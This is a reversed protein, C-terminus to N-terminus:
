RASTKTMWWVPTQRSDGMSMTATQAAYNEHNYEIETQPYEM